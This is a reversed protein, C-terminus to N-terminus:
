DDAGIRQALLSYTSAIVMWVLIPAAVMLVCLISNNM